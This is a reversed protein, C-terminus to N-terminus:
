YRTLMINRATNIVLDQAAKGTGVNVQLFRIMTFIVTTDGIEKFSIMDM